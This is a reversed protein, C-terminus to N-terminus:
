SNAALFLDFPAGQAIQRALLGTSGLSVSLEGSERALFAPRIEDFARALDAAAAVRIPTRSEAKCGASLALLFLM